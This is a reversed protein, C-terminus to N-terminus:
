KVKNRLDETLIDQLLSIHFHFIFKDRVVDMGFRRHEFRNVISPYAEYHINTLIEAFQNIHERVLLEGVFNYFFDSCIEKKYKLYTNYSLGLSRMEIEFTIDGDDSCKQTIKIQPNSDAIFLLLERLRASKVGKISKSGGSDIKINNKLKAVFNDM